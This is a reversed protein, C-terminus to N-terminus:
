SKGHLRISSVRNLRVSHAHLHSSSTMIGGPAAAERAACFAVSAPLTQQTPTAVKADLMCHVDEVQKCCAPAGSEYLMPMHAGGHAFANISTLITHFM